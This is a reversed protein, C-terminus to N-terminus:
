RFGAFEPRKKSKGGYFPVDDEAAREGFASNDMVPRDQSIDDQASEEVDYFRMKKRDLGIVFKSNESKDGFRNKLQKVMVQNFQDLEESRILAFMMDVTFTIGISDSTDTLEVDSNNMGGRNTQTASFIPVDLEMALGRLEVAISMVLNYSNVNSLNRHRISSCINLYDVYIVDAKFKRKLKLENIFHRFHGVHASGSPYEKIILKGTSRTRVREMLRSYQEKSLSRLEDISIDLLNADIRERVMEESMELTFYLVNQGAMLNAAALHCMFISKGVNTGAMAVILSKRGVGGKTIQNFKALDFPIKEETRHYYDFQKEWDDMYDHGLHSDFSVALADALLNPLAGREIDKSKGDMVAISTRVANYLARDQCFKETEDLLWQSDTLTDVQFGQVMGILSTFRDENVGDDKDITIVVAEKSPLSNYENVFNNISNFLYREDPDLFYEEKVYPLVKRSYEENLLLNSLVVAEIM